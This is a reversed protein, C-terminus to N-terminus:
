FDNLVDFINRENNYEDEIDDDKPAENTCGEGCCNGCAAVCHLGNRRCSCNESCPDKTELKCNCRVFKLLEEPAVPERTYVPFNEGNRTTWGWEELDLSAEKLNKWDNM